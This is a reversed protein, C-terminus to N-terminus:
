MIDILLLIPGVIVGLFSAVRIRARLILAIFLPFITYNPAAFENM